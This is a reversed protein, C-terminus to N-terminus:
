APRSLREMEAILALTQLDLAGDIRDPRFRRQFARVVAQTPEDLMGSQEVGYGIASLAAQAGAVGQDEIGPAYVVTCATEGVVPALAVGAEALQAWPFKEGPDDKRAPAVDSHGIVGVVPIGRRELVDKLLDILASIQAPPYDPLGFDHGGNVIEIGISHSNVDTIGRWSSVGAHWARQTEDALRFIRGDEEVVYHCSVKAEPDRLRKIATPGDIMGTYHLVVLSPAVGEPRPNVNPSFADVIAFRM